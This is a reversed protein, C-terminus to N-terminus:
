WYVTRAALVLLYVLFWCYWYATRKTARLVCALPFVWSGMDLGFPNQCRRPTTRSVGVVLTGAARM